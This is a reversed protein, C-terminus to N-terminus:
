LANNALLQIISMVIRPLVLILGFITIKIRDSIIFHKNLLEALRFRINSINPQHELIFYYIEIAEDIKNEKTAIQALWYLREIELEKQQFPKLLLVKKADELKNIEILYQAFTLTQEHTMTVVTTENDNSKLTSAQATVGGLGILLMFTLCVRLFM